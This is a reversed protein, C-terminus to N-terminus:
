ISREVTIKRCNENTKEISIFITNDPLANEINESWEVVTVGGSESYEFFNTTYLDEWSCIRYMDFHYVNLKGGIYENVISFTPSNVEGFFGLGKALGRVFCTKGMGLGGVFAIIEGGFLSEALAAAIEETEEPSSSYHETKM